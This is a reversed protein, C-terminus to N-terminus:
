QRAELVAWVGLVTLLSTAAIVIMGGMKAKAIADNTMADLLDTPVANRVEEKLYPRIDAVINPLDAEFKAKFSDYVPGTIQDAVQSALASTDFDTWDGLGKLGMKAWLGKPADCSDVSCGAKVTYRKGAIPGDYGWTGAPANVGSQHMIRSCPGCKEGGFVPDRLIPHGPPIVFSRKGGAWPLPYPAPNSSCTSGFGLFSRRFPVGDSSPLRAYTM